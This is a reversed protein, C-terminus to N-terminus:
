MVCLTSESRRLDRLPHWFHKVTMLKNSSLTVEKRGNTTGVSEVWDKCLEQCGKHCHEHEPATRFSRLHAQKIMREFEKQKHPNSKLQKWGPLVIKQAVGMTLRIVHACCRACHTLTEFNTQWNLSPRRLEVVKNKPTVVIQIKSMTEEEAIWFKTQQQPTVACVGQQTRCSTLLELLHLKSSAKCTACPFCHKKLHM